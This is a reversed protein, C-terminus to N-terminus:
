RGALLAALDGKFGRLFEHMDAVDADSVPASPRSRADDPTTLEAPPSAAAQREVLAEASSGRVLAAVLGQTHCDPCAVTLFWLEDQHGLVNVDGAQYSAGCTSCRVANMLQRVLSDSFDM